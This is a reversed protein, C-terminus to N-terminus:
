TGHPRAILGCDDVYIMILSVGEDTKKYFMCPEKVSQTYGMHNTLYKMLKHYWIRGAQKLGYISKHLRLVKDEQGKIEFGKPQRMYIEHDIEGYLFATKIDLIHIELDKLFAEAMLLKFSDMSVVPSYTHDYDAGRRQTYGKAVLRSKFRSVKGHSHKIKYVWRCGITKKGKPLDALSWTKNEMLSDYEDQMSIRWMRRMDCEVAEKWTKPERLEGVM